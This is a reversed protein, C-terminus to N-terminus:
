GVLFVTKHVEYICFIYKDSQYLIFECSLGTYRMSNDYNILSSECNISQSISDIKYYYLNLKLSSSDIYGLIFYYYNIDNGNIIKHAVLTFYDAYFNENLNFSIIKQGDM